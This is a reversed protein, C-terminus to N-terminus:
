WQRERLWNDINIALPVFSPLDNPIDRAALEDKLQESLGKLFVAKLAAEIWQADAALTWFHVSYDTVSLPQRHSIQSLM